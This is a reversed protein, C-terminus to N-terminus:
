RPKGMLIKTHMQGGINRRYYGDGIWEIDKKLIKRVVQEDTVVSVGKAKFIDELKGSVEVFYGSKKLLDAKHNIVSSKAIKTGDHGTAVFKTGGAKRKSVSVANIEGDNDLDIVEYDADGESGHVNGGGKYNPHGGIPAYAHSILKFIGPSFQKLESSPILTWKNPKIDLENLLKVLKIM